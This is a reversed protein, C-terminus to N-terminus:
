YVVVSIIGCDVSVTQVKKLKSGIRQMRFLVTAMFLALSVWNFSAM